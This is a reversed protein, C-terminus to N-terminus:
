LRSLILVEVENPQRCFQLEKFLANLSFCIGIDLKKLFFSSFYLKKCKDSCLDTRVIYLILICLWIRHKAFSHGTVIESGGHPM